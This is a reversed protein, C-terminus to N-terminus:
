KKRNKSVNHRNECEPSCFEANNHHSLFLMTCQKCYRISKKEDPLDNQEYYLFASVFSFFWDSFQSVLLWDFREDYECQLSMGM